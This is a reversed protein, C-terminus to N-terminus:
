AIGVPGRVVRRPLTIQVDSGRRAHLQGGHREVILRAREMSVGDGDFFPRWAHDDSGPTVEFSVTHAAARVTVKLLPQTMTSSSTSFASNLVACLATALEHADGDIDADIAVDMIEVPPPGSAEPQARWAREIAADLLRRAATRSMIRPSTPRRLHADDVLPVVGGVSHAFSLPLLPPSLEARAVARSPVALVSAAIVAIVAVTAAILADTPSLSVLSLPLAIVFAVVPATGLARPAARAAATMTIGVAVCLAWLPTDVQAIVCAVIFSSSAYMETVVRRRLEPSPQSSLRRWGTSFAALAALAGLILAGTVPRTEHPVVITSAHAMVGIVLMLTSTVAMARRTRQHLLQERLVLSLLPGVVCIILARGDGMEDRVPMAQSLLSAIAVCAGVVVFLAVTIAEFRSLRGRWLLLLSVVCSLLLLAFVDRTYRGGIAVGVTSRM